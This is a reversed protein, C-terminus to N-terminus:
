DIKIKGPDFAPKPYKMKLTELTKIIIESIMLNRFWKKNAPIIFWPALKTSCRTLADEYAEIYDNWLKREKVDDPNMKWVKSPDKLRQELREKQEEKDIFLFFKLIKLGNEALNEEFRNIQDYRKEWVSRPVLEHVRVVLVDEYHSRNFIGIEGKPPVSKHIRWLYDHDLEEHTPAKFSIVKCGQPNVGRMVHRVTGDKGAADM